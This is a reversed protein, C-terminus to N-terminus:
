EIMRLKIMITKNPAFFLNHLQDSHLKRWSENEKTLINEEFGGRKKKLSGHDANVGKM